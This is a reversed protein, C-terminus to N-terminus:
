AKLLAPYPVASKRRGPGSPEEGSLERVQRTLACLLWAVIAFSAKACQLVEVTVPATHLARTRCAHWLMGFPFLGLGVRHGMGSPVM